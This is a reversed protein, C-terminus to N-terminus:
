PDVRVITPSPFGTVPVGSTGGYGVMGLYRTGPVLGTFALNITGSAASVASSPAGITMNGANASGLMWQYLTFSATAGSPVTFGHVYVVYDGAPPNVLNVEENSAGSGSGGVAAGNRYVYLDLDSTPTV